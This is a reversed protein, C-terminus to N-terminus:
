TENLDGALSSIQFILDTISLIEEDDDFAIEPFIWDGRVLIKRGLFSPDIQCTSFMSVYILKKQTNALEVSPLLRIGAHPKRNLETPHPKMYLNVQANRKFHVLLADIVKTEFARTIPSGGRFTQSLVVVHVRGDDLENAVNPICELKVNLKRIAYECRCTPLYYEKQRKTLINFKPYAHVPLYKGVGHASNTVAIKKSNLVRVFDLSGIDFEDSLQVQAIGWAVVQLAHRIQSRAEMRQLSRLDRKLLFRFLDKAAYPYGGLRFQRKGKILSYIYRIQRAISLPFPYVVRLVGEQNPDFVLEIDDVYCKRYIQHTGKDIYGRRMSGLLDFTWHALVKALVVGIQKNSVRKEFINELEPPIDCAGKIYVAPDKFFIQTEARCFSDSYRHSWNIRRYFFYQSDGHARAAKILRKAYTVSERLLPVETNSM